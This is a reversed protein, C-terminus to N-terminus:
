RSEWCLLGRGPDDRITGSSAIAAHVFNASDPRRGVDDGRGGGTITGRRKAEDEENVMKM